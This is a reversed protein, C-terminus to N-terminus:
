ILVNCYFQESKVSAYKLSSVGDIKKTENGKKLLRLVLIDEEYQM